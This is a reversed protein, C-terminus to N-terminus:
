GGRRLRLLLLVGTFTYVHAAGLATALEYGGFMGLLPVDGLVARIHAMDVNPRRYFGQGRAACDFYLALDPPGPLQGAVQRVMRAMDADAVEPHRHMFGMTTNEALRYPVVLGHTEQDFGGLARVLTQEGTFAPQEPDLPFGFLLEEAVQQLTEMGMSKGQDILTQLAPRGDLEILIQEKASTIFHPEGVAACSQTIGVAVDMEGQFVMASAGGTHIGERALQISLGYMGGDSAGAGFLPVRPLAAAVANLLTAGDVRYADPWLVTVAPASSQGLFSGLRALGAGTETVIGGCVGLGPGDGVMVGVAPRGEVEQGQAIVGNASCGGLQECGVAAVLAEHLQEAHPVHDGSFVCLAWPARGLGAQQLAAAAAERAATVADGATSLGVGVRLAANGAGAQGQREAM